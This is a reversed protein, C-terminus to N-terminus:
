SKELPALKKPPCAKGLSQTALRKSERIQMHLHRPNNITPMQKSHVEHKHLELTAFSPFTLACGAYPCKRRLAKINIRIKGVNRDINAEQETNQSPELNFFSSAPTGAASASDGGVDISDLDLKKDPKEDLVDIELHLPESNNKM